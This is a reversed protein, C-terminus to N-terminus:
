VLIEAPGIIGGSIVMRMAQDITWKPDKVQSESLIALYGTTPNPVTPIFIKLLTEGKNKDEITGTVFGITWVGTRFFEVLVVRKFLQKEPLSLTESLQRGIQYTTKIIPIKKTIQEVMGLIKRGLVNSAILGVIYLFIILILIGMGPFNIKLQEDVLHTVKLDIFYRLFKIALYSLYIPISALAGRIVFTRIHLLINKM